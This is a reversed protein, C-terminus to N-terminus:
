GGALVPCFTIEDGDKLESDLLRVLNIYPHGNLLILNARKIERTFPDFLINEFGEGHKNCLVRLADRLTAKETELELSAADGILGKFKLYGTVKIKM